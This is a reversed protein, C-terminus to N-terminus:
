IRLIMSDLLILIMAPVRSASPGHIIHVGAIGDVSNSSPAPSAPLRPGPAALLAQRSSSPALVM